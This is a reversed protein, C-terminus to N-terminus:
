VKKYEIRAMGMDYLEGQYKTCKCVHPAVNLSIDKAHKHKIYDYVTMKFIADVIRVANDGFLPYMVTKSLFGCGGGLWVVNEEKTGRNFRSYFYDYSIKQFYNLAEIIDPMDYNCGSQKSTDITIDFCIETGPILTERLLPLPKEKHDLTYDIKQSLTLQKLSIPDSDGVHLGSLNDNVANGAKEEDRKLTYLIQQELNAMEKALYKTRNSKVNAMKRIMAQTERYKDPHKHIEWAILATRLMGKISSGPVYPMGYADKIFADIEKDRPKKNGVEVFAEGADMEYRKWREYDEGRFSHNKLWLSLSMGNRRSDMLYDEFERGFGKRQVDLYMKTIDPILVQHNWPMYIYEKKGIKVGSGIHVPSLTHLKVQYCKLYESM